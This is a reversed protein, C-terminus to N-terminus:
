VLSCHVVVGLMLCCLFVFVCVQVADALLDVGRLMAARGEVGFRIEKGSAMSRISGLQSSTAIRKPITTAAKMIPNIPHTQSLFHILSNYSRKPNNCSQKISATCFHISPPCSISKSTHIHPRRHIKESHTDKAMKIKYQNRQQFLYQSERWFHHCLRHPM